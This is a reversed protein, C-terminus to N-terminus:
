RPPRSSNPAASLPVVVPEHPQMSVLAGMVVQIMQEATDSPARPLGGELWHFVTAYVVLDSITKPESSAIREALVDCESWITRLLMALEPDGVNEAFRRELEAAEAIKAEISLRLWALEM